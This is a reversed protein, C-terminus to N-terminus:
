PVLLRRRTDDLCERDGNPLTANRKELDNITARLNENEAAVRAAAEADLRIQEARHAAIQQNSKEIAATWHLDRADAAAREAREIRREDWGIVASLAFYLAIGAALYLMPRAFIKIMPAAAEFGLRSLLTAFM